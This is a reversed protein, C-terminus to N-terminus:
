SNNNELITIYGCAIAQLLNLFMSFSIAIFGLQHCGPLIKMSTNLQLIKQQFLFASYFFRVNALYGFGLLPLIGLKYSLTRRVVLSHPM